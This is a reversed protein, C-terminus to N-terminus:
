HKQKCKVVASGTAVQNQDDTFRAQFDLKKNGSCKSSVIARQKGGSKYAIKKTLLEFQTIVGAGGALPPVPTSLMQGFKSGGTSHKFSGVLPVGGAQQTYSHLLVKNGKVNAGVTEAHVTLPPTAPGSKLVVTATGSGVISDPCADKVDQTTSQSGFQSPDCTPYGKQQFKVDKDFDVLALTTPNPVQQPNSPNTAFVNVDLSIPARESEPLKKNKPKVIKAVIQQNNVAASAFSAIAVSALAVALGLVWILHKRM